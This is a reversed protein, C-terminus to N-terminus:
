SVRRPMLVCYRRVTVQAWLWCGVIYQEIGLFKGDLLSVAIFTQGLNFKIRM